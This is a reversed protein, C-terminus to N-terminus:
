VEKGAWSQQLTSAVSTAARRRTRSDFAWLRELRSIVARAHLAHSHAKPSRGGALPLLWSGTESRLQSQTALQKFM